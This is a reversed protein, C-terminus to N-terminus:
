VSLSITRIMPYVPPPNRYRKSILFPSFATRNTIPTWSVSNGRSDAMIEKLKFLVLAGYDDFYSVHELSVTLAKPMQRKLRSGIANLLYAATQHDMRGRIFAVLEGGPQDSFDVSVDQNESSKM